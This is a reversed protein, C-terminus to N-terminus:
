FAYFHSKFLTWTQSSMIVMDYDSKQNVHLHLPMTWMLPGRELYSALQCWFFIWLIKMGWFYENKQFGWFIQFEFNQVWFSGLRRLIFIDSYWEGGGGGELSCTHASLPVYILQTTFWKKAQKFFDRLKQLGKALM